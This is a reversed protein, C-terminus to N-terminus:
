WSFLFTAAKLAYKCCMPNNWAEITAARMAKRIYGILLIICRILNLCQEIGNSVFEPSNVQSASVTMKWILEYANALDQNPRWVMVDVPVLDQFVMSFAFLTGSSTVELIQLLYGNVSYTSFNRGTPLVSSGLEITSTDTWVNSGEIAAFLCCALTIVRM